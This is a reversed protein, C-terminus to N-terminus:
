DSPRVTEAVRERTEQEHEPLGFTLRELLNESSADQSAPMRQLIVLTIDDEQEWKEGVFRRLENLLHHILPTPAFQGALLAELRPFGFMEHASNHAEILGDSYFLLTEGPELTAEYEEYSTGPMMGLPMGTAWLETASGAYQRYPPEHGANAYRLRGTRPDLIAFFCTVFMSAPIDAYLLDNVRALVESPSIQEQAATRLMTRTATMVLAAPIGKDTVDGIVLGLRGDAFPLFDYFDGGVENAAQYYPAIQWGPLIPLDKPLFTRQINQATHLEQEFRGLERVQIQQEEVLQVVRLTPAVQATLTSLLGREERTYKEGSVHTGLTLLGLLEGQSTLPLVIEMGNAQLIQMLPSGVNLRNVELVGPHHQAHLMFLDDEAITIELSSSDQPREAFFEQKQREAQEFPDRRESEGWGLPLPLSAIEPQATKRVWFSVIHPQMTQQVVTLLGDRVKDLDIEERLTSAFAEIARAAEYNRRNFRQDIFAQGYTYLPTLLVAWTLTTTVVIFLSVPPGHYFFLVGFGPTHILVQIAAISGFYVFALGLTLATYLWTGHILNSFQSRTVFISMGVPLLLFFLIFLHTLFLLAAFAALIFVRAIHQVVAYSRPRMQKFVGPSQTTKSAIQFVPM